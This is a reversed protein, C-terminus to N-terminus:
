RWLHGLNRDRLHDRIDDVFRDAFSEASFPRFADSALFDRAAERYRERESPGLARLFRDLEAYSAFARRDIFCDAPIHDAIDPAGLYIPIVGAYFCDFIKETVWGPLVMNEYCVAFAHRSMAEYKDVVPGRCTRRVADGFEAEYEGLGRDWLRGWLEMGGHDAFYQVARLRETYLEGDPLVARKNSNVMVVGERDRRSWYPERVADFPMPIRFPAVRVPGDVFPRLSDADSWSYVTRFADALDPIARYMEPEVVVVEFLYFATLLVDPRAAMASVNDRIGFSVFINAEASRGDEGFYDATELPIGQERLRDRLHFWPRLADDRNYKSQRDFLGNGYYHRTFPDLYVRIPVRRATGSDPRGRDSALSRAAEEEPPALDQPMRRRFRLAYLVARLRRGGGLRAALRVLQRLVLIRTVQLARRSRLLSRVLSANVLAVARQRDGLILLNAARRAEDEVKWVKYCTLADRRALRRVGPRSLHRDVAGFFAEPATRMHAYRRSWQERHHRYSYLYEPILGVSWELSLRLWMDLDAAIGFRDQDFGGVSEFAERRFMVSPTRLFTCKHRLVANLLSGTDFSTVGALDAPLALRAYERGADDIFKDLCLVAGADPHADLYAVQRAILTPAYLDDAHYVAVYDGQTERVARNMAGYGGLSKANRVVRLEPHRAAIAELIDVTDDDSADDCVVIEQPPHTQAFITVATEKLFRAANHAAMAVSVTGSM